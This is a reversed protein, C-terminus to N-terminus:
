CPLFSGGVGPEVVVEICHRGHLHRAADHQDAPKMQRQHPSSLIRLTAAMM